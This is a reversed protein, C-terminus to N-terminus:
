QALLEMLYKVADSKTNVNFNNALKGVAHAGAHFRRFAALQDRDLSCDIHGTEDAIYAEPDAVPIKIEIWEVNPPGDDIVEDDSQGHVTAADDDTELWAAIAEVDYRKSVKPPFGDQKTLGKFDDLELGLAQAAETQTSALAM